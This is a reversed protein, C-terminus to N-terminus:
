GLRVKILFRKILINNYKDLVIVWGTQYREFDLQFNELFTQYLKLFFVLWHNFAYLILLIHRSISKFLNFERLSM